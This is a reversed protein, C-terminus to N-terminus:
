EEDQALHEVHKPPRFGWRNWLAVQLDGDIYSLSATTGTVSEKETGVARKHNLIKGVEMCMKKYREMAEKEDRPPRRKSDEAMLQEFLFSGRLTRLKHVTVAAPAGFHRFANNVDSPKVRILKNGNKYTFIYENGSKDDLLKTLAAIIQKQIPDSERLIHKTPISDKGLYALNIGQSTPRAQKAVLTAVGRGPASGVRAAFSYLLELVVACVADKDTEDFDKIKALWKARINKIRANLARVNEYKQKSQTRAFEQTYFYASEGDPKVAKFVWQEEPDKGDNMVVKNYTTLNPVGNILKGDETYLRGQDDIKGVFGPIMSHTYGQSYMYKYCDQYDVLNKHTNRVYNTLAAKFNNNHERRLGLYEQYKQPDTEKIMKAEDLSLHIGDRGVLDQVTKRLARNDQKEVDPSLISALAPVKFIGANKKIYDLANTSDTMLYARIAKLMNLEPTTYEKTNRYEPFVEKLSTGLNYLASLKDGGTMAARIAEDLGPLSWKVKLLSRLDQRMPKNPNNVYDAVLAGLTQLLLVLKSATIKIM